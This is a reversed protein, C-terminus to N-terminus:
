AQLLRAPNTVMITMITPDDVGYKRLMPVTYDLIGAYGFGGGSRTLAKQYVDNGIVIRDAYGARILLLLGAIRVHDEADSPSGFLDICINAGCDMIRKAWDLNIAHRGPQMLVDVPDACLFTFQLHCFLLKAPNMGNELFASLLAERRDRPTVRSTHATVLLNTENAVRSVTRVFRFEEEDGQRIATKIHGARIETGDIGERIERFLHSRFGQDDLARFPEPWSDRVYLGTSAIIHVGTSRSIDGVGRINTRIGPAGPELIASGGRAKFFAVERQMLGVDTLDWNDPCSGRLGLRNLYCLNEMALRADVNIPCSAKEGATMRHQFFPALVALVHDHMSTVGLQEPAIPGLVTMISSM